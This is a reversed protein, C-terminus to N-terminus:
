RIKIKNLDIQLLDIGFFSSLLGIIMYLGFLVALGIIANTVTGRAEEVKNKDGGSAIWKVGGIIFMFVFLLAGILFGFTIFKSILEVFTFGGQAGECPNLASGGGGPTDCPQGGPLLPNILALKENM